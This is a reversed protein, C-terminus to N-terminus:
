PIVEVQKWIINFGKPLMTAGEPLRGGVVQAVFLIDGERLSINSRNYRVEMGLMDSAVNAVDQHGMSSVWDEAKLRDIVENVPIDKIAVKCNGNVMQLSFANTVFIM